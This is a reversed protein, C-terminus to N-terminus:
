TRAKLDRARHNRSSEALIDTLSRKALRPRVTRPTTVVVTATEVVLPTASEAPIPEPTISVLDEHSPQLPPPVVPEPQPDAAPVFAAPRRRGIGIEPSILGLQLGVDRRVTRGPKYEVMEAGDDHQYATM